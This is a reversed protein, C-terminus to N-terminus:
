VKESRTKRHPRTPPRHIRVPGAMIPPDGVAGFGAWRGPPPGVAGPPAFWVLPSTRAANVRVWVTAAPSVTEVQEPTGTGDLARHYAATIAAFRSPADPADSRDPHTAKALRRYARTVAARDAGEALGLVALAARVSPQGQSIVRGCRRAGIDECRLTEIAQRESKVDHLLSLFDSITVM